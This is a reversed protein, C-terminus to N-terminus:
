AVGARHHSPRTAGITMRMGIERTRWAITCALVAYIGVAPACVAVVVALRTTM